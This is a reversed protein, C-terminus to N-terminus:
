NIFIKNERIKQRNHYKDAKLVTYKKQNKEWELYINVKTGLKTYTIKCEKEELSGWINSYGYFTRMYKM